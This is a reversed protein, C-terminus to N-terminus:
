CSSTTRWEVPSAGSRRRRSLALLALGAFALAAPTSPGGAGCGGGDSRGSQIVDSTTTDGTTADPDPDAVTTDDVCDGDATCTLGNECAGCPGVCDDTGCYVHECSASCPATGLCTNIQAEADYGCTMGGKACDRAVVSGDECAYSMTADCMGEDGLEACTPATSPECVFSASCTEGDPCSGCSGGCGDSGCLKGDCSAVCGCEPATSAAHECSNVVCTDVTCPDSDDCDAAQVCCGAVAQGLCVRDTCVDSATCPDGDDCSVANATHTVGLLPDCADDTCPNDDDLPVPDSGICAGLYCTENGDCANTDACSAGDIRKTSTCTDAAEDCASTHCKPDKGPDTCDLPEGVCSGAVCRTGTTCFLGDDCTTDDPRPSWATPARADCHLCPLSPHGAGDTVCVGGIVCFGPKPPHTTGGTTPDCLDDTCALTDPIITRPEVVCGTDSDAMAAGPDCVAYFCASAYCDDDVPTHTILGNEDCLDVTCSFGDDVQAPVTVVCDGTDSDCSEVGNCSDGDDCTPAQDVDSVCQGTTPDCVEPGNCADGDGPCSRVSLVCEGSDADWAADVCPNADWCGEIPGASEQACIHLDDLDWECTGVRLLRGDGLVITDRDTYLASAGFDAVALDLDPTEGPHLALVVTETGGGDLNLLYTAYAATPGVAVLESWSAMTLARGQFTTFAPLTASQVVAGDFIVWLGSPAVDSKALLHVPGDIGAQRLNWNTAGEVLTVSTGLAGTHEDVSRATLINGGHTADTESHIEWVTTGIVHLGRVPWSRHALLTWAGAGYRFIEAVRADGDRLEVWVLPAGSPSTLVHLRPSYPQQPFTGVAKWLTPVGNSELRIRLTYECSASQCSSDKVMEYAYFWAGEPAPVYWGDGDGGNWLPMVTATAGIEVPNVNLDVRTLRQEHFRPSYSQTTSYSGSDRQYFTAGGTSVHLEHASTSTSWFNVGEVKPIPGVGTDVVVPARWPAFPQAFAVNVQASLFEYEHGLDDRIRVWVALADGPESTRLCEAIRGDPPLATITHLTEHASGDVRAWGLSVSTIPSGQLVTLDVPACETPGGLDRLDGRYTEGGTPAVFLVTPDASAITTVTTTATDTHGVDDTVTYRVELTVGADLADPISWAVPGGEYSGCGDDPLNFPISVWTGGVVRWELSTSALHFDDAAAVDVGHTAGVLVEIDPEDGYGRVRLQTIEPGTTDEYYAPVTKTATAGIGEHEDRVVVTVEWATSDTSLPPGDFRFLDSVEQGPDLAVNNDDNAEIADVDEWSGGAHHLFARSVWLGAQQGVNKITARALLDDCPSDVSALDLAVETVAMVAWGASSTWTRLESDVWREIDDVSRTRVKCVLTVGPPVNHITDSTGAIFGTRKVWPGGDEQCYVAMHVAAGNASSGATWSVMFDGNDVTAGDVPATLQAATLATNPACAGSQCVETDSCTSLCAGTITLCTAADCGASQAMCEGCSTEVPLASPDCYYPSAVSDVYDPLGDFLSVGPLIVRKDLGFCLVAAVGNMRRAGDSFLAIFRGSPETSGDSLLCGGNDFLAGVTCPATAILGDFGAESIAAPQGMAPELAAFYPLWSESVIPYCRGDLVVCLRGSAVAEYALPDGVSCEPAFDSPSPQLESDVGMAKGVLCAGEGVTMTDAPRFPGSSDTVVEAALAAKLPPVCWEPIDASDSFSLVTTPSPELNWAEAVVKVAACRNLTGTPDFSPQDRDFVPTEDDYDLHSLARVYNAYWVESPPVDDFVLPCDTYASTTELELAQGIVKAWDARSFADTGGYSDCSSVLEETHLPDICDCWWAPPACHGRNAVIFDTPDSYNDGTCGPYSQTVYGCYYNDYVGHRIGLHLHEAGDENEDDSGVYGILDGLAVSDGINVPIQTGEHNCLHGYISQNFSGDPMEHQIVVVSGYGNSNGRRVTKVVGAGIAHVPTLHPHASDEGLHDWPSLFDRGAYSGGAYGETPFDFDCAAGQARASTGPFMLLGFFLMAHM